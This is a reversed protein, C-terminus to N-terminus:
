TSTPVETKMEYAFNRRYLYFDREKLQLAGSISLCQDIEEWLSELREMLGRSRIQLFIARLRISVLFAPQMIIKGTGTWICM